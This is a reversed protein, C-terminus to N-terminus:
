LKFLGQHELKYIKDLRNALLNSHTVIILATDKCLPSKTFLEFVKEANLADLNGTPEDALLIKPNNILARAIAVRQQQGGSLQSPFHNMRDKLGVEQLLNAARDFADINGALIAPMAVNELATFDALLHHAQYVYGINLLRMKSKGVESLTSIPGGSDLYIEGKSPKDLLGCIHLFTSKGVGSEGTIAIKDGVKLEFNVNLLIETEETGIRFVKCVNELKLVIKKELEKSM